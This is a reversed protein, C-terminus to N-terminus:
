RAKNSAGTNNGTVDDVMNEVGAAADDIIDSAANGADDIADGVGDAISGNDNTGNGNYDGATVDNVNDTNDLSDTGTGNTTGTTGTGNTTGTTGTGNTTGTTGTGNTTGTTGTGNTTDTTDTGGATGTTDTGNGNTMGADDTIGTGNDGTDTANRSGCATLVTMSLVMLSVLLIKKMMEEM